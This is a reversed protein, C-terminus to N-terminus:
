SLQTVRFAQFQMEYFPEKETPMWPWDIRIGAVEAAARASQIRPQLNRLDSGAKYLLLNYQKCLKQLEEVYDLDTM